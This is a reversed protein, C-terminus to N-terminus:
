AVAQQQIGLSSQFAAYHLTAFQANAYQSDKAFSRYLVYNVLAEEYEERMELTDTSAAVAAPYISYVVEIISGATVPPYNHFTIPDLAHDYNFQNITSQPTLSRWGPLADDLSKRDTQNIPSTPVGAVVNCTIDLLMHVNQPLTQKTGAVLTFNDTVSGANPKRNIIARAGENIWLILESQPWRVNSADQLVTSVKAIVDSGAITM